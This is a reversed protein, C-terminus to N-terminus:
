PAPASAFGPLEAQFLHQIPEQRLWRLAVEMGEGISELTEETLVTRARPFVITEELFVHQQVSRELKAVLGDVESDLSPRRVIESLLQRVEDHDEFSQDIQGGVGHRQAVGYFYREELIAHLLLSESLRGLVRTRGDEDTRKWYDEFLSNVVRHERLLLDIANV